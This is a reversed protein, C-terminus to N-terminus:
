ATGPGGVAALQEVSDQICSLLFEGLERGDQAYPTTASRRTGKGNQWRQVEERQPHLVAWPDHRFAAQWSGYTAPIYRLLLAPPHYLPLLLSSFLLM